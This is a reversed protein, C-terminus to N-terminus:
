LDVEDRMIYSIFNDVCKHGLMGEGWTPNGNVDLM